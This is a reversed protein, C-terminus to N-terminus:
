SKYCILLLTNSNNASSSDPISEIIEEEIEEYSSDEAGAIEMGISIDEKGKYRLIGHNNALGPEYYLENLINNKFEELSIENTDILYVHKEYDDELYLALINPYKICQYTNTLRVPLEEYKYDKGSLLQRNTGM